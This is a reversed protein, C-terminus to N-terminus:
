ENNLVFGLLRIFYDQMKPSVRGTGYMILLLACDICEDIIDWGEQSSLSIELIPMILVELMSILEADGKVSQIIKSIALM